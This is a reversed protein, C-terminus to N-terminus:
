GGEPRDRAGPGCIGHGRGAKRRGGARHRVQAPLALRAGAGGAAGGPPARGTAVLGARHVPGNPPLSGGGARARGIGRLSAGGSARAIDSVDPTRPAAQPVPAVAEEASWRMWDPQGAPQLVDCLAEASDWRDAPRKRLCRAIMSALTPPVDSRRRAISEPERGAHAALLGGLPLNAFPPEGALMEYAVVGFAYIDARHDAAPDAAAQEPAMYTPTGVALGGTTLFQNAAEGPKAIGFDALFVNERSILVNEPKLDRHVVGCRHAYALAGALYGLIRVAEPVPLPGTRRLRLRLTEGEVYPMTFWLLGAGAGSDYVPLIQAHQLRAAVRIERQFREAGLTAAIEPHLM